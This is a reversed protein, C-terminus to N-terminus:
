QERKVPQAFYRGDHRRALEAIEGSRGCDMILGIKMEPYSTLMAVDGNSDGAVLVPQKGGYLPAIFRDICAVKGERFPQV